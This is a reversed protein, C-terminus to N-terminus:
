CAGGGDFQTWGSGNCFCPEDLSDDYYFRGETTANCTGPSDTPNSRLTDVELTPIDVDCGDRIALCTGTGQLNISFDNTCDVSGCGSRLYYTHGDTRYRELYLAGSNHGTIHVVPDSYTGSDYIYINRETGGLPDAGIGLDADIRMDNAVTLGGSATFGTGAAGINTIPNNGMNLPDDTVYDEVQTENLVTDVTPTHHASVDGTHGTLETQTATDFDLESESVCASGMLDSASAATGSINIAATGATLNTPDLATLASGDGAFSTAAVGGGVSLKTAARTAAPPSSGSAETGSEREPGTRAATAAASWASAGRAELYSQVVRLAERLDAESPASAVRFLNPPSWEPAGGDGDARVSWAYQGGRELCRDLSPTWGNASGSVTERLVPRMDEGDESLRYVALQYSRAGAVSGWSFTPCPDGILTGTANGPSVAVPEPGTAGAFPVSLLTVALTGCLVMPRM